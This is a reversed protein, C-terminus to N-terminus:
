GWIIWKLGGDCDTNYIERIEGLQELGGLQIKWIVQVVQNIGVRIINQKLIKRNNEAVIPKIQEIQEASPDDIGQDKLYKIAADDSVYEASMGWNESNPPAIRYGALLGNDGGNSWERKSWLGAETIFLYDKGPERFQALAGTSILASFVVDITKPFESETEPVVDRFSILSRPFSDSILECNITPPSSPAYDIKGIDDITIQGELYSRMMAIDHCDIVGDQNLDGVAKQRDDFEVTGCSYDILLMLDSDDIKGDFNLDGLQLQQSDVRKDRNAFTPGLGLYVRNNNQNPDYGDAGYGPCQLLYDSFRKPEDGDIVGIGAPLGDADQEQNILGMTGLSIYKPIYNALMPYGQNLVGDGTLYHGIGTLLSNTAANHGTHSSVVKGNRNDLVRICVNHRATINKAAARISNLNDGGDLFKVQLPNRTM